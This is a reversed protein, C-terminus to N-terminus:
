GFSYESQCWCRERSQRAAVMQLVPLHLVPTQINRRLTLEVRRKPRVAQSSYNVHLREEAVRGVRWLPWHMQRPELEADGRRCHRLQGGEAVLPPRGPPFTDSRTRGRLVGTLCGEWCFAAQSMCQLRAPWGRASSRLAYSSNLQSARSSRKSCTAADCALISSIDQQEFM